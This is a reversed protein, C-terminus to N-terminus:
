FLKSEEASNFEVIKGSQMTMNEKESFVSVEGAVENSTTSQRKFDKAVDKTRMDSTERIEGAATQIIDTGAVSTINDNASNSINNGASM